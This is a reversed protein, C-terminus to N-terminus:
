DKETTYFSLVSRGHKKTKSIAFPPFKEDLSEKFDHQIAIMPHAEIGPLDKLLGALRLITERCMDSNYPPDAFIYGPIGYKLIDGKKIAGLVDKKLVKIRDEIGFKKATKIISATLLASSEIFISLSAGRSIAEFGINGTGAYLDLFISGEINDGLVNFLVGKVIDSSPIVNDFGFVKPITRGKLFGTIIRM